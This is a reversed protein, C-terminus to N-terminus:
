GPDKQGTKYINRELIFNNIEWLYVIESFFTIIVKRFLEQKLYKIRSCMHMFKRAYM